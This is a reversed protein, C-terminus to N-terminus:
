FKLGNLKLKSLLNDAYFEFGEDNPHVYRDSFYDPNKPVFDFGSIVTINPVKEAVTRIYQEAYPFLFDKETSECDTRWIPTIAFIKANPYNKNLNEYFGLCNEEFDKKSQKSWDNTGYAVTIYDPSIDDKMLSLEKWFVEGGIAKNIAKASLANILKAAYSKSPSSADYGQTISDGFILMTTEKKVPKVYSNDDLEFFSLNVKASWPLLVSVTKIGDGLNATIEFSKVEGIASTEDKYAKNLQGNVFIDFGYFRRSSANTVTGGMYLSKSDTTFELRIGSCASTKRYFDASRLSYAEEQEKTFRHFIVADNHKDIYAAGLTIESIQEINLKMIIDGNKSKFDFAVM